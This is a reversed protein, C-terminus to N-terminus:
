GDTAGASPSTTQVLRRTPANEPLSKSTTRREFPMVDSTRMPMAVEPTTSEVVLCAASM